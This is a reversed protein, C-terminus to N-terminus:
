HYSVELPENWFILHLRPVRHLPAHTNSDRCSCRKLPGVGRSSAPGRQHSIQFDGLHWPARGLRMEAHVGHAPNPSRRSSWRCAGTLWHSLYSPVIDRLCTNSDVSGIWNIAGGFPTLSFPHELSPPNFLYRGRPKDTSRCFEPLARTPIASVM